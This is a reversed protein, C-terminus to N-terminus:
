FLESRGLWEFYRKWDQRTERLLSGEFAEAPISEVHVMARALAARAEDPEGNFVHCNIIQVYAALSSRDDKFTGVAEEYRRLAERYNQTEFHCDAEYLFAHRLYQREALSLGSAGRREYETILERYLERASQFRLTSEARMQRLEGGFRADALEQKLELGSRRYCDALVYIARWTRADDPYRDLCEELTAIAEEFSARMNLVDGLMFLAETFEPAEPTLVESEELVIRLTKEALDESGPGLALYCQALPVLARSGDYSRPFTQYCEQYSSIAGTLDGMQQLLEGARLLARPVLRHQPREAAFGRYLEVARGLENGRAFLEAARWTSESARREDPTNIRALELFTAAAESFLARAETGKADADSDGAAGARLAEAQAEDARLSLIDALQQLLLTSQEVDGRNILAAALRAYQLAPGMKGLRRQEDSIVTLSTRLVDRNVVRSESAAGLKEIALQYSAVAEDHRELLSLAEGAGVHSAIAYASNGNTFIVDNFFSLAELPRQPQGDSLVVRGLLWGSKAHLEDSRDARNRVTRLRAEAEDYAGVNYLHLAELYGFHDSLDSGDFARKNAILLASCEDIRDLDELTAFKQEIAWLRLDLRHDELEGLMRDLMGDLEGPPTDPLSQWLSIARRRLDSRRKAGKDIAKGYVAAAERRMGQWEYALGMREYDDPALAGGKEVVARYHGVIRAGGAPTALRRGVALGFGARALQLHIPGLAHPSHEERELLQYGLDIAREFEEAKVAGELYELAEALPLERPKPNLRLLGGALVFASVVLLPLQWKGASREKLSSWESM